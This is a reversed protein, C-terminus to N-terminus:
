IAYVNVRVSALDMKRRCGDWLTMYIVGFIRTLFCFDNVFSFYCSFLSM